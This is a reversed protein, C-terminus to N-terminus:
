SDIVFRRLPRDCPTGVGAWLERTEPCLIVAACSKSGEGRDHVCVPGPGPEHDALAERLSEPDLSGARAALRAALRRERHATTAEPRLPAQLPQLRPSQYHNAHVYVPTSPRITEV